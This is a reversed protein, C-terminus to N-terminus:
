RDQLQLPAKGKSRLRQEADKLLQRLQEDSFNDEAMNHRSTNPLFNSSLFFFNCGQGTPDRALGHKAPM